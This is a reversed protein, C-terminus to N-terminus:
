ACAVLKNAILSDVADKLAAKYGKLEVGLTGVRSEIKRAHGSKGSAIDMNVMDAIPLNPYLEKLSAFVDEIKVMDEAILYRGSATESAMAAAHATVVDQVHVIALDAAGKLSNVGSCIDKIRTMTGNIAKSEVPGIVLNGPVIVRMDLGLKEAEAVAAKEQEVKSKVYTWHTAWQTETLKQPDDYVDSRSWTAETLVGEDNGGEVAALSSTLVVRSVGAKKAANIVSTTGDVATKLIGDRGEPTQAFGYEPHVAAMHFVGDCGKFAAELAAADDLSAVEVVKAGLASVHDGSAKADRVTGIVTNGSAVLHKVLHCAIFGNSGTVAYTPM